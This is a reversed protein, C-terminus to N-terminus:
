PRTKETNEKVMGMIQQMTKEMGSPSGDLFLM